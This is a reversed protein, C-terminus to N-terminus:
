GTLLYTPSYTLLRALLNVFVKLRVHKGEGSGCIQINRISNTQRLFFNFKSQVVSSTSLTSFDIWM